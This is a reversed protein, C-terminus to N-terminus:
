RDGERVLECERGTYTAFSTPTEWLKVKTLRVYRKCDESYYKIAYYLIDYFYVVMNEATTNFDLKDNLFYHDLDNIIKDNVMSKLDKFDLVIGRDDVVGEVSVQLKYTHGHLRACAGDYNKLQHSSDFTFEKTVEIVAQPKYILSKNDLVHFPCTGCWNVEHGQIDCYYEKYDTQISSKCNSCIRLVEM